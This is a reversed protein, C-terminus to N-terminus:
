TRAVHLRTAESPILGPVGSQCDSDARVLDRSATEGQIWGKAPFTAVELLEGAPLASLFRGAADYGNHETSKALAALTAARATNLAAATSPGSTARMVVDV